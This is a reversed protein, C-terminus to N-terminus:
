RARAVARLVMRRLDSDVPEADDLAARLLALTAPDPATLAGLARVAAGAGLTRELARALLYGACREGGIKALADYILPQLPGAGSREAIQILTEVHATRGPAALLDLLARAHAPPPSAGLQEVLWLESDADGRGALDLFWHRPWSADIATLRAAEGLARVAQGGGLRSLAELVLRDQELKGTLLGRVRLACDDRDLGPLALLGKLLARRAPLACGEQELALLLDEALTPDGVHALARAAHNREGRCLQDLLLRRLDAPLPAPCASLATKIGAWNLPRAVLLAVARYAAAAAAHAEDTGALQPAAHLRDKANPRPSDDGGPLQIDTRALRPPMTALHPAHANPLCLWGVAVCSLALLACRCMRVAVVGRGSFAEARAREPARPLGSCRVSM